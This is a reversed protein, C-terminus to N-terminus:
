LIALVVFASVAVQYIVTTIDAVNQLTKADVKPPVLVEDGPLIKTGPDVIAVAANPHILIVRSRDSRDTYGGADEIYDEATMDERYM